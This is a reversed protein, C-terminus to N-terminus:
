AAGRPDAIVDSALRRVALLLKRRCLEEQDAESLTAGPQACCTDIPDPGSAYHRPAPDRNATPGQRELYAAAVAQADELHVLVITGGRGPGPIRDAM